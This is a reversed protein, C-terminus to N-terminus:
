GVRRRQAALLAAAALVLGLTAPEPAAQPLAYAFDDLQYAPVLLPDGNVDMPVVSLLSLQRFESGADAILGLFFVGGANALAPNGASTGAGAGDDIRIRYVDAAITDFSPAYFVSMGFARLGTPGAHWLSVVDGGVFVDFPGGLGQGGHAGPVVTPQVTAPFSYKFDGLTAASAIPGPPHSEFDDAILAGGAAALFAARDTYAVTNAFGPAANVSLVAFVWAAASKARHRTCTM